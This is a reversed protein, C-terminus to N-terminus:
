AKLEEVVVEVFDADAGMWEGVARVVYTTGSYVLRDGEVIDVTGSVFTQKSERPSNLQYFQAVEPSVPMVPVIAITGLYTAPTAVKGGVAAPSRLTSATATAMREFSSTTTAM